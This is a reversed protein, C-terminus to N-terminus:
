QWPMPPPPGWIVYIVALAGVCLRLLEVLAASPTLGVVSLFLPVILLLLFACIAAYVLRVFLNKM